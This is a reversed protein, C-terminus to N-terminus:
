PRTWRIELYDVRKRKGISAFLMRKRVSHSLRIARSLAEWSIKADREVLHVLIDSHEEISGSTYVRFHTGYKFGTRVVFGREM